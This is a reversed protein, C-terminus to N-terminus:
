RRVRRVIGVTVLVTVAAAAGLVILARRRARPEATGPNTFLQRVDAAAQRAQHGPNLRAALEDVTAALEARTAVIEAQIEVMQPTSFPTPPKKPTQPSHPDPVDRASLDADPEVPTGYPPDSQDTM